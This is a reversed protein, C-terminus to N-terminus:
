KVSHKHLSPSLMKYKLNLNEFFTSLGLIARIKKIRLLMFDWYDGDMIFQSGTFIKEIENKYIMGNLRKIAIDYHEKTPRLM